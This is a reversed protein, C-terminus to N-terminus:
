NEPTSSRFWAMHCRVYGPINDKDPAPQPEDTIILARATDLTVRQGPAIGYSQALFSQLEQTLAAERTRVYALEYELRAAEAQLFQGVHEIQTLQALHNVGISIEM